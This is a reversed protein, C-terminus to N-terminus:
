PHLLFGISISPMYVVSSMKENYFLEPTPLRVNPKQILIKCTWDEVEEVKQLFDSVTM